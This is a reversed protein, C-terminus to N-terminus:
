AALERPEHERQFDHQRRVVDDRCQHEVFNILPDAALDAAPHALRQRIHRTLAALREHDRVQRLDGHKGILMEDDRLALLAAHRGAVDGHGVPFRPHLLNRSHQAVGIHRGRPTV